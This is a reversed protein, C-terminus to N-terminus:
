LGSLKIAEASFDQISEENTNMFAKKLKDVGKQLSDRISTISGKTQRSNLFRKISDPSGKIVLKSNQEANSIDKIYMGMLDSDTSFPITEIIEYSSLNKEVNLIIEKQSKKELMYGMSKAANVQAM